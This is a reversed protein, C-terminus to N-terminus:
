LAQDPRQALQRVVAGGDGSAAVGVGVDAEVGRFGAVEEAARSEADEVIGVRGGRFGAAVAAFQRGGELSCRNAQSSDVHTAAESRITMEPARSCLRLSTSRSSGRSASITM